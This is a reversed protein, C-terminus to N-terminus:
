EVWVHQTLSYSSRTKCAKEGKYPSREEKDRHLQFLGTTTTAFTQTSDYSYQTTGSPTTDGSLGTCLVTSKRVSVSVPIEPSARIDFSCRRVRGRVCSPRRQREILSECLLIEKSAALV